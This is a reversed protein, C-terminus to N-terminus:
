RSITQAASSYGHEDQWPEGAAFRSSNFPTLNVTTAAGDLVWESLCKGIAPATKFSSGSDGSMLFLGQLRPLHDIVPHSDESRMILGTWSGRMTAHRMRPMRSALKQHCLRVYDQGPVEPYGDPDIDTDAGLETGILTMANAMPRIWSNLSHDIITPHSARTDAPHRFVTVSTATPILGINDIGLPDLLRRAWAGGALVVNDTHIEGANTRVGRVKGSEAIIGTVVTDLRLEAGLDTAAQLFSHTTAHPDAFGAEPEWAIGGVDALNLEPDLELAQAHTISGTNVGIAQHMRVNHELQARRDVPTLVLLGVQEFGCSGGVMEQWNHFYKLSEFALQTEPRNAYHCRVLAGSKGTAGNAVSGQEVIIIRGAKRQALHFATSAGNVGAGIVVIDATETM